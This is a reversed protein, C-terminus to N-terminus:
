KKMELASIITELLDKTALISHEHKHFSANMLIGPAPSGQTKLNDDALAYIQKLGNVFESESLHSASLEWNKPDAEMYRFELLLGYSANADYTIEKGYLTLKGM